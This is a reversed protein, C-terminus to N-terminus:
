FHIRIDKYPKLGLEQLFKAIRQSHEGWKGNKEIFDAAVKPSKSLQVKITEALFKNMVEDFIEFNIHLKGDEDFSTVGHELLYNFQM